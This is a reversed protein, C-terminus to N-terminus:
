QTFKLIFIEGNRSTNSGPVLDSDSEVALSKGNPTVGWAVSGFAQAGYTIQLIGTGDSNMSFTETYGNLNHGSLNADSAFFIKTGDGKWRPWGSGGGGITNTLQQLGSGGVNMSFIEYNGDTNQGAVLDRDSDFVVKTDNSNLCGQEIGWGGTTFTLQTVGSGDLNMMFLDNNGDGNGGPALDRDSSFAIKRTKSDFCPHTSGPSGFQTRGGTTHTLQALGTGDTNIAFIEFNGDSNNGPILDSDSAFVIIKGNSSLYPNTVGLSGSSHTLQVLGTADTKMFFLESNGDANQGPVLDCFSSFAVHQASMDLTPYYSGGNVCTPNSSDTLQSITLKPVAGFAPLAFLAVAGALLWLTRNFKPSCPRPYHDIM